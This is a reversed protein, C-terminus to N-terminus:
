QQADKAAKAAANAATRARLEELTTAPLVPIHDDSMLPLGAERQQLQLERLKEYKEATAADIVDDERVIDARLFVMLNKKSINSNQYKFLNGLIPISGLIPVKSESGDAEEQMLGGLVIIEGDEAMIQTNIKSQKTIIGGNAAQQDDVDSVEQEINLLVKDGENIQPTVKLLIGVQERNFTTFPNGVNGSSSTYSGTAVPIEQGISIEAEHNDMTLLTPTSLINANGSSDLAKALALFNGSGTTGALGLVSGSGQAALGEGISQPTGTLIGSALAGTGSGAGRPGAGVVGSDPDSFLWEFGLEKDDTINLEVIIAEVLVQARRIDLREVVALLSNLTDGEATILLANTDEDAEVTAANAGGKDGGGGPGLKTINQAVKTLVEAVKKAEAYELYVVRVNGTQAAPRDLMKILHKVRARQVDEGAILIANNRKDAVMTMKNSLGAAQKDAADLKTLTQVMADAESYRLRVVETEPVAATDIKQIVRRIRDINAKTDTIIISNSGDHHTLNANTSVMPRLAALLKAASINQAPIVDTVIEHLGSQANADDVPSTRAEKIPIVKAVDGVEIIAFNSLELASRFLEYLEDKTMPNDNTMIRVKGKVAPDLVITKGTAAAVTQIFKVIDLENSGITYTPEPQDTNQAQVLPAAVIALGLVVPKIKTLFM